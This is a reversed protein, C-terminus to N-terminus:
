SASSTFSVATLTSPSSVSRMIARSSTSVTRRSRWADVPRHLLRHARLEADDHLPDQPLVAIWGILLLSRRVCHELLRLQQRDEPRRPLRSAPAATTLRRLLSRRLASCGPSRRGCGRDAVHDRPATLVSSAPAAVGFSVASRFRGGPPGEGTFRRAPRAHLGLARDAGDREVLRLHRHAPRTPERPTGDGCATGTEAVGAAIAAPRDREPRSGAVVQAPRRPEGHEREDGRHDAAARDVAESRPPSKRRRTATRQAAM